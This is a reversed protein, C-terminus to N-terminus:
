MVVLSHDSLVIPNYVGVLIQANANIETGLPKLVRAVWGSSCSFIALKV